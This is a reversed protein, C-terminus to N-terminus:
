FMDGSIVVFNYIMHLALPARVSQGFHRAAALIMAVPVLAMSQVPNFLHMALWFTSTLLATPLVGWHKQLGTWLWGRFLSEEALPAIVVILFFDWLAEWPHMWLLNRGTKNLRTEPGVFHLLIAYAVVIIALGAIIPLRSMPKNGLGIDINGSGVIRGRIIAAASFVGVDSFDSAYSIIRDTSSNPVNYVGGIFGIVAGIVFDCTFWLLIWGIGALIIRRASEIQPRHEQEREFRDLERDFRELEQDFGEIM